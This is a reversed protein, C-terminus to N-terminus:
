KPAATPIAQGGPNIRRMNGGQRSGDRRGGRMGRSSSSDADSARTSMSESGSTSTKMRFVGEKAGSPNSDGAMGDNADSPAAGGRRDMTQLHQISRQLIIRDPGTGLMNLLKQNADLAAKIAAMMEEPSANVAPTVIERGSKSRTKLDAEKPAVPAAGNMAARQAELKELMEKRKKYVASDKALSDLIAKENKIKVDIDENLQARKKANWNADEASATPTKVEPTIVAKPEAARTVAPAAIAGALILAALMYRKM